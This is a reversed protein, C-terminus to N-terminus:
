ITNSFQSQAAQSREEKWQLTLMHNIHVAKTYLDMEYKGHEAVLELMDPAVEKLIDQYYHYKEYISQAGHGSSRMNKRDAALSANVLPVGTIDAMLEVQDKRGMTETLLVVDFKHLVTIARHQTRETVIGGASVGGRWHMGYSCPGDCFDTCNGCRENHVLHPPSDTDNSWKHVSCEQQPPQTYPLPGTDHMSADVHGGLARVIYNDTFHRRLCKKKQNIAMGEEIWKPLEIRLLHAFEDDYTHNQHLEKLRGQSAPGSFFFESLHREIPHRIAVVSLTDRWREADVVPCQFDLAYFEQEYYTVNGILISSPKDDDQGSYPQTQQAQQQRELELTRYYVM